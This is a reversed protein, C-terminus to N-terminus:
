CDKCPDTICKTPTYTKKVVMQVRVITHNSLNKLAKAIDEEECGRMEDIVIQERNWNTAVPVVDMGSYWMATNRLNNAITYADANRMVAVVEIVISDWFSIRNVGTDALKSDPIHKIGENNRIYFYAGETDQPFVIDLDGSENRALPYNSVSDKFANAYGKNFYTNKSLIFDKFLIFDNTTM